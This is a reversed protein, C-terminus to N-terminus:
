QGHGCLIAGPSRSQRVGATSHFPHLQGHRPGAVATRPALCRPGGDRWGSSVVARLLGRLFVRGVFLVVVDYDAGIVPSGPTMEDWVQFGTGADMDTDLPIEFVNGVQTDDWHSLTGKMVLHDRTVEAELQTLDMGSVGGFEEPDTWVVTKNPDWALPTLVQGTALDFAQTHPPMYDSFTLNWTTDLAIIMRGDTLRREVVPQGNVISLGRADFVSASAALTLQNGQALWRGDSLPPGLTLASGAGGGFSFTLLPSLYNVVFLLQVDAGWTPIAAGMGLWGTLLSRDSDMLVDGTLEYSYSYLNIPDALTITIEFQDGYTRIRAATMDQGNSNDDAPDTFTLDLAAAPRRVVVTGTATNLSGSDPCRDGNGWISYPFGGVHAVAFLDLATTNNLANVPLIVTITAGAVQVSAGPIASLDKVDEAGGDVTPLRALTCGDVLGVQCSLRFDAGAVSGVRGDGTTINQDADLFVDVSRTNMIVTRETVAITLQGGAVSAGLLVIDQDTWLDAPDSIATPSAALDPPLALLAFFLLIRLYASM